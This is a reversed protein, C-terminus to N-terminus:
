APRALVRAFRGARQLRQRLRQRTRAQSFSDDAAWDRLMALTIATLAVEQAPRVMGRGYIRAVDLFDHVLRSLDFALPVWHHAHTPHLKAGIIDIAIQRDPGFFDLWREMAAALRLDAPQDAIPPWPVALLHLRAAAFWANAIADVDRFREGVLPLPLGSREAIAHLRLQAWGQGGALAVAAAVIAADVDRENEVKAM